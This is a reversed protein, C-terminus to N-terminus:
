MEELRVVVKGGPTVEGWHPAQPYFHSDDVGLALAIGDEAGKMSAVFTLLLGIVIIALLTLLFLRFM